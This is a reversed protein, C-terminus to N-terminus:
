WRERMIKQRDRERRCSREGTMREGGEECAPQIREKEERERKGGTRKGDESDHDADEAYFRNDQRHEKQHRIERRDVSQHRRLRKSTADLNKPILVPASRPPSSEALPHNTTSPSNSISSNYCHRRAEDRDGTASRFDSRSRAMAHREQREGEEVVTIRKLYAGRGQRRRRENKDM